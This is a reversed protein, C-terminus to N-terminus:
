CDDEKCDKKATTKKATKKATTKKGATKKGTTKASGGSYSIKGAVLNYPDSLDAVFSQITTTDMANILEQLVLVTSFSQISGYKIQTWHQQVLTLKVDNTSIAFNMGTVQYYETVDAYPEVYSNSSLNFVPFLSFLTSDIVLAYSASNYGILSGDQTGVPYFYVFFDTIETTTTSTVKKKGKKKTTTTTTTEAFAIVVIDTGDPQNVGLPIELLSNSYQPQIAYIYNYTNGGNQMLWVYGDWYSVFSNSTQKETNSSVIYYCNKYTSNFMLGIKLKAYIVEVIDEADMQTTIQYTALQNNGKKKNKKNNNSVINEGTIEIDAINMQFYQDLFTYWNALFPFSAKYLGSIGNYLVATGPFFLSLGTAGASLGASQSYLITEDLQLALDAAAGTLEYYYDTTNPAILILALLFLGVDITGSGSHPDISDSFEYTIYRSEWITPLLAPEMLLESFLSGLDNITQTLNMATATQSMSLTATAFNPNLAFYASIVAKGLMTRQAVVKSSSLGDSDSYSADNLVKWSTYDWQGTEIEASSLIYDAVGSFLQTSEALGMLSADFGVIDMTMNEGPFVKDLASRITHPLDYIEFETGPVIPYSSM